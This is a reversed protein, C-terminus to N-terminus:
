DKRLASIAAPMVTLGLSGNLCGASSGGTLIALM